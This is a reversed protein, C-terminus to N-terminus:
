WRAGLTLGATHPSLTPGVALQDGDDATLVLTLGVGAAAAGGILTIVNVTGLTRTQDVADLGAQSCLNQDDCEDDVERRSGVYLAGTIVSAILSAGGLGILVYGTLRQASGDSADAPSDAAPAPEAEAGAAGPAIRIPVELVQGEAVTVVRDVGPATIRHEGPNVARKVGLAEPSLPREDLSVQGSGDVEIVLFPMRAFVLDREKRASEIARQFPETPAAAPDAMAIESYREYADALRGLKVLARAQGLAATPAPFIANSRGYLEAAQAFDGREMAEGADQFLQRGTARDSADEGALAPASLAVVLAAAWPWRRLKSV